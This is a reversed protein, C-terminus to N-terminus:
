KKFIATMTTKIRSRNIFAVVILGVFIAYRVYTYHYLITMVISSIGMISSLILITKGEFVCSGTKLKAVRQAYIFHAATFIIYCVLTTYGAMIYGYLRIFVFNLIINTIAGISSMVMTFKNADYYFEVNSFIGYALMFFVAATVSPVIYVAEYYKDSALIKMAEPAVAMFVILLAGVFTMISVFQKNISDFDGEKLKRYEWPTLSQNVSSTVIKMVMGLSYAVGYIGVYQMGCMKQIMIRDSQDLIYTSLYHPILPINFIVAFRAYEWVFIKKGKQYIRVYIIAGIIINVFICSLIRAIGKEESALVAIIGVVANALSMLLTVVVVSMYKYDYRQRLMWFSVSPFFFLEVFMLITVTTNLETLGVIQKHFLLYIALCIITIISTTTMMSSTYGDKDETYKSLGKNFVAYTLNFTTIMTFISLWSNYATYKGYQETTLLRTFIPTTIFSMGKQLTGCFIFWITAKVTVPLSKYKAIVSQIESRM